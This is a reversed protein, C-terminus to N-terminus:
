KNLFDLVAKKFFAFYGAKEDEVIRKIEEIQPGSIEVEVGKNIDLAISVLSLDKTLTYITGALIKGPEPIEKGDIDKVVLKKFDIKM